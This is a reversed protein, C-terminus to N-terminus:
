GRGHAQSGADDILKVCIRRSFEHVLNLLEGRAANCAHVLDVAVGILSTQVSYPPLGGRPAPYCLTM